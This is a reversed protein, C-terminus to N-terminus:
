PQNNNVAACGANALGPLLRELRERMASLLAHAEARGEPTSETDCIERLLHIGSDISAAVEARTANRGEAFWEVELPEGIDFLVGGRRDSFLQYDTVTWVACCGPNRKIALGSSVGQATIEDERRKMNPRTLFPCHRAAYEACERHSPPEANTRNVGSMPGIVFSKFRGLKEGCVWCLKERTAQVLKRHDIIRFDFEGNVKAVFWPVPFGRLTPLKAIREPMAPPTITAGHGFPCRSGSTPPLAESNTPTNM